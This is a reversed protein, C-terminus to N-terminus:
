AVNKGFYFYSESQLLLVHNKECYVLYWQGRKMDTFMPGCYTNYPHVVM